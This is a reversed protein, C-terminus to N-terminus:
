YGVRRREAVKGGAFAVAIEAAVKANALILAVNADIAKDGLKAVVLDLLFPTLAKGKVGEKTAAAVAEAIAPEVDKAALASKAALPNAFLVGEPRGLETWHAKLLLAAQTADEVEHELAVDTERLYFGPLKKTGYGIVPVGWTELLETTAPIDLISKFGSSVVAVPTRALTFLDASIDPAKQWDRHVGGLGGTAFLRVGARLAAVLTGSVTTSGARKTAALAGLDRASAKVAKMGLKALKELETDSLGVVVEGDLVGVTAPVAGAKRVAAEAARATELGRPAPLGHTVLTTELAVVPKEDHVADKVEEAIRFM